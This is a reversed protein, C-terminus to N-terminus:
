RETVYAGRGPVVEVLGEEALVRVAKRATLRAVGHEQMLRSESPVARGPPYDGRAIADRLIAAIQLYVPVKGDHDVTM